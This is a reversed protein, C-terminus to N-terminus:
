THKATKSQFLVITITFVRHLQEFFFEPYTTQMMAISFTVTLKTNGKEM